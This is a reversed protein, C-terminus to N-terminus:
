LNDRKVIHDRLRRLDYFAAEDEMTLHIKGVADILMDTEEIYVKEFGPKFGEMDMLNDIRDCIKVLIAFHPTDEHTLRVICDVWKATRNPIADNKTLADVADMVRHAGDNTLLNRERLKVIMDDFIRIGNEGCDELIDHSWATIVGLHCSNDYLRVMQAVNAPHVIYPTTGNKRFLGNHAITAAHAAIRISEIEKLYM